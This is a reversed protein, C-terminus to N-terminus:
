ATIIVSSARQGARREIEGWSECLFDKSLSPACGSSRFPLAHTVPETFTRFNTQCWLQFSGSPTLFNYEKDALLFFIIFINETLFLPPQHTIVFLCCLQPASLIPWSHIKHVSSCLYASVFFSIQMYVYAFSPLMLSKIFISNAKPHKNLLGGMNVVFLLLKNQNLVSSPIKTAVSHDQNVSFYSSEHLREWKPKARAWSCCSGGSTGFMEMQLFLVGFLKPEQLNKRGVGLAAGM